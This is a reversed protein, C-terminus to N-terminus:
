EGGKSFDESAKLIASTINATAIPCWSVGEDDGYDKVTRLAVQKFLEKREAQKSQEMKITALESRLKTNEDQLIDIPSKAQAMLRAIDEIEKQGVPMFDSM